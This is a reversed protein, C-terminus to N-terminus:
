AEEGPQSAERTRTIWDQYHDLSEQLMEAKRPTQLDAMDPRRCLYEVIFLDALDHMIGGLGMPAFVGVIVNDPRPAPRDGPISMRGTIGHESMLQALAMKRETRGISDPTIAFLTEHASLVASMQAALAPATEGSFIRDWLTRVEPWIGPPDLESMLLAYGSLEMMDLLPESGFIVQNRVRETSLDSTLRARARDALTITIPFLQGPLDPQNNLIAHFTADFLLRYSQGFLDPRSSDHSDHGLQLAVQGLKVYLQGALIPPIEDPLSGDPWLEDNTPVHRLSDLAAVAQRATPLHTTLKSVLELSDLIRMAVAAADPRTDTVLPDILEAQVDSIFERIATLLVQLLARACMHHVWWGPTVRRPESRQEFEIGRAIAELMELLRWPAHTTYPGQITAVADDFRSALRQADAHEFSKILGLWFRTYVLVERDAAALRVLEWRAGPAEDDPWTTAAVERLYTTITRRLLRAEDVQLRAALYCILEAAHDVVRIAREWEDPPLGTLLRGLHGAIANEAWLPDPTMTPQVSTRTAVAMSLRPHDMTLWNPHSAALSFWKSKAPIGPKLVSATDWCDLLELAIREPARAESVDRKGILDTLQGYISLVAAARDHAAQEQAEGPISRGAASASRAARLFRRRLPLSLTSLDFFNFLRTGLVVLSVVSFATLVAFLLVTLGHPSRHAVLPMTLLALGVLLAVAVNGAYILSTRERVFLSRIEGPVRAYTTSAIVGVTTFFLALFAAEAGVAAGVFAEYSGPDITMFLTGWRVAHGAAAAIAESAAVLAATGLVTALVRGALGALTRTDQRFQAARDHAAVWAHSLRLRRSHRRRLRRWHGTRSIRALKRVEAGSRRPVRM